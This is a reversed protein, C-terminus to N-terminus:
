PFGLRPMKSHLTPGKGFELNQFLIDLDIIHTHTLFIPVGSQFGPLHFCPSVQKSEAPQNQGMAMDMDVTVQSFFDESLLM